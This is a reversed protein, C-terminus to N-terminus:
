SKGGAPKRQPPFRWSISYARFPNSALNPQPLYFPSNQITTGLANYIRMRLEFNVVKLGVEVNAWLVTSRTGGTPNPFPTRDAFRPDLWLAFENSVFSVSASAFPRARTRPLPLTFTLGALANIRTPFLASDPSSVAALAGQLRLVERWPTWELALSGTAAVRGDGTALQALQASGHYKLGSMRIALTTRRLPVPGPLWLTSDLTNRRGQHPYDLFSTAETGFTLNRNDSGIAVRGEPRLQGDVLALGGHLSWKKGTLSAGLRGHNLGLLRYGLARDAIRRQKTRWAGVLRWRPTLRYAISGGFWLSLSRRDLHKGEMGDSTTQLDSIMTAGYLRIAWSAAARELQFGQAWTRNRRRDATLRDEEVLPLGVQERQHLLTYSLAFSSGNRRQYDLLYNQLVNGEFRDPSPGALTYRGPHSRAHGATMINRSEDLQVAGGVQVDQYQYDGQDWFFYTQNTRALDQLPAITFLPIDPQPAPELAPREGTLASDPYGGAVVASPIVASLIPQGLSGDLYVGGLRLDAAVFPNATTAAMDSHGWEDWTLHLRSPQPTDQMLAVLRTIWSFRPVSLSDPAQTTDAQQARLPGLAAAALSLFLLGRRM